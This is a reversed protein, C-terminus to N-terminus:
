KEPNASSVPHSAHLAHLATAEARGAEYFMDQEIGRTLEEDEDDLAQRVRRWRLAGVADGRLVCRKMRRWAVWALRPLEVEDLDGEVQEELQVGEDFPDLANGPVWPTDARRWGERAARYRLTRVPVGHRRGCAEATMGDLYDARVAEWVEPPAPTRNSATPALTSGDPM